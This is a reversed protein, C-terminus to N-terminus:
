DPIGFRIIHGRRNKEDSNDTSTTSFKMTYMLGALQPNDKDSLTVTDKSLAIRNNFVRLGLELKGSKDFAAEFVGREFEAQKDSDIEDGEDKKIVGMFLEISEARYAMVNTTRFAEDQVIGQLFTLISSDTFDLKTKLKQVVFQVLTMDDVFGAQLSKGSHKITAKHIFVHHQYETWLSGSSTTNINIGTVISENLEVNDTCHMLVAFAAVLALIQKM